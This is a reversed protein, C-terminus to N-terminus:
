KMLINKPSNILNLVQAQSYKKLIKERKMAAARDPLQEIYVLIWPMKFSTYHSQANNHALLRKFPDNSIGKYYSNDLESQIIYAFFM